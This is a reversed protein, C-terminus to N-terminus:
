HGVRHRINATRHCLIRRIPSSHASHPVPPVRVPPRRSCRGHASGIAPCAAAVRMCMHDIAASAHARDLELKHPAYMGRPATSIGLFNDGAGILCPSPAGHGRRRLSTATDGHAPCVAARHCLSSLLCRRLPTRRTRSSSTPRQLPPAPRISRGLAATARSSCATPRRFRGSSQCRCFLSRM